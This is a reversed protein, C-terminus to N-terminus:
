ERGRTKASTLGEGEVEEFVALFLSLRLASRLIARPRHWRFARFRPNSSCNPGGPRRRPKVGYRRSTGTPSAARTPM